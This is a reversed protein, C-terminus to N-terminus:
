GARVKRYFDTVNEGMAQAQFRQSVSEALTAAGARAGGLDDLRSRIARTLAQPDRPRVLMDSPVIEPIGGVRAAVMPLRAAAAELIVYPFSEAHSPMVFLKGMAFARRAAMAGTFAARDAIGLERAQQEFQARDPGDGALTATVGPLQALAQILDAVGKLTRLEGLFVIDRADADPEIAVFEEPWLGNNVVTNPLGGLGIKRAFTDREFECVFILGAGRKLILREAGLFAMGKPSAWDYHLTGGHPTYVAPVKLRASALRAYVGGKAGHGHMIDLGLPKAIRTVANAGSIDGLGPMRGIPLRHIGLSCQPDLRAFAADAQAGGTTSDCVIGVAHGLASQVRVLDRVHRFM